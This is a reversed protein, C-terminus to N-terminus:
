SEMCGLSTSKWFSLGVRDSQGEGNRLGLLPAGEIYCGEEEPGRGNDGYPIIKWPERGHKTWNNKLTMEEPKRRQDDWSHLDGDWGTTEGGEGTEEEKVAGAAGQGWVSATWSPDDREGVLVYAGQFCPSKQNRVSNQEWYRSYCRACWFYETFIQQSFSYM